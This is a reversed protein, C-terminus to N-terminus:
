GKRMRSYHETMKPCGLPIETAVVSPEPEVYQRVRVYDVDINPDATSAKTAYIYPATVKNPNNAVVADWSSNDIKYETDAAARQWVRRTHWGNDHAIPGAINAVTNGSGATFRQWYATAYSLILANAGRAWNCFGTQCNWHSASSPNNERCYMEVIYGVGFV